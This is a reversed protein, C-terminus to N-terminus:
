DGRGPPIPRSLSRQFSIRIISRSECGQDRHDTGHPQLPHALRAATGPKGAPARLVLGPCPGAPHSSRGRAEIEDRLLASAAYVLSGEVGHETVVLEGQQKFPTKGAPAFSLVVSKLPVGAFRTRFHDSWPVNFGCNSPRLPQVTVGREQLVSVWEGTSGLRSWSGGGLALVVASSTVSVRGQPTEFLLLGAEDWGLWRHRTHFRVGSAHLRQTWARLIAAAPGPAPTKTNASTQVPFVRGSTGVFTDFGLHHVWEVLEKPGFRALMPELVSRRAGYRGLFQEFPESHTLNLGGKGAVLFKRGVSPMAEYLDVQVGNQSLVEAAMLGAPGGGIVAASPTPNNLKLNGM